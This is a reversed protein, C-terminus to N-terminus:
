AHPGAKALIEVAADYTELVAALRSMTLRASQIAEEVKARQLPGLSAIVRTLDVSPQLALLARSQDALAMCERAVASAERMTRLDLRLRSM